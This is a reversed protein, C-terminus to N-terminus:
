ILQQNESTSQCAYLITSARHTGEHSQWLMTCLFSCILVRDPRSEAELETTLKRM